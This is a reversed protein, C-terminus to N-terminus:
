DQSEYQAEEQATMMNNEYRYLQAMAIQESTCLLPNSQWTLYAAERQQVPTLIQQNDSDDLGLDLKSAITERPSTVYAGKSIGLSLKALPLKLSALLKNKYANSVTTTADHELLLILHQIQDITLYPRLKTEQKPNSM